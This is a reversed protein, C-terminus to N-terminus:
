HETLTPTVKMLDYIYAMARIQHLPLTDTEKLKLRTLTWEGLNRNLYIEHNWPFRNFRSVYGYLLTYANKLDGQHFEIEYPISQTHEM